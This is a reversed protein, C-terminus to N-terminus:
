AKNAYCNLIGRIRIKKHRSMFWTPELLVLDRGYARKVGSYANNKM